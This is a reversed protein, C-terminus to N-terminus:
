GNTINFNEFEACVNILKHLSNRKYLFKRFGPAPDKCKLNENNVIIASDRVADLDTLNHNIEEILGFYAFLIHISSKESTEKNEM